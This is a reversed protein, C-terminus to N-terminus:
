GRSRALEEVAALLRDIEEATNYPALGVRVLGGSDALGLREILTVAYFDGDWVFLGREGLFRAVEVPTRGALTFSVTPTRPYGAPPGYVRVGPIRALGDLLRQALPAEYAEIAHMGALIEARRGTADGLRPRFTDVYPRGLEAIFDVAAAAGALGEHNLTGTEIKEPASPSQPRVRYTELAEFAARRGYLVGVHPGFFKYVSCLLFDCGVQRVDIPGHPAYHVADVVALAGAEHAMRVARAVDNITGVANSAWGIAVVRTRPSLLEALQDLDLTCTEPDVRLWRIVAGREALALWPSINADHDLETVVIEDGARLTRGIARALAFNLTTMNAGFAIEGPEAGLFDALARRAAAITEDTARSTLFAGHTNSNKGILYDNMAEIVRRPVQTGGPGDLFAAPHGNVTLSLAPFQARCPSLDVGGLPASAAPRPLADSTDM